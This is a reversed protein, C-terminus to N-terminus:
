CPFRLNPPAYCTGGLESQLPPRGLELPPCFPIQLDTECINPQNAVTCAKCGSPGCVTEVPTEPRPVMSVIINDRAGSTADYCCGNEFCIKSSINAVPSGPFGEAAPTTPGFIPGCHEYTNGSGLVVTTVAEEPKFREPVNVTIVKNIAVSTAGVGDEHRNVKWVEAAFGGVTENHDLYAAPSCNTLGPDCIRSILDPELGDKVYVFFKNPNGNKGPANTMTYTYTRKGNLITQAVNVIFNGSAHTITESTCSSQAFVNTAALLTTVAFVGASFLLSKRKEM